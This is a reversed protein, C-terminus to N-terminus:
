TGNSVEGAGEKYLILYDKGYKEVVYDIFYYIHPNSIVVIDQNYISKAESEKTVYGKIEFVIDGVIFDPYYIKEVGDFVYKRKEKCRKIDLNNDKCWVVFALEWSSDCFIGKYRGKKGRGSGEIKGGLKRDKAIRSLKLKTENSHGTKNSGFKQNDFPHPIRQPNLRCHREHLVMGQKRLIEKCCYICNM